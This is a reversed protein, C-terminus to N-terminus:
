MTIMLNSKVYDPNNNFIINQGSRDSIFCEKSKSQLPKESIFTNLLILFMLYHYIIGILLTFSARWPCTLTSMSILWEGITGVFLRSLSMTHNIEANNYPCGFHLKLNAFSGENVFLMGLIEIVTSLFRFFDHTLVLMVFSCIIQIFAMNESYGFLSYQLDVILSVLNSTSLLLVFMVLRGIVRYINFYWLEKWLNKRNEPNTYLNVTLAQALSYYIFSLLLCMVTAAHRNEGVFQKPGHFMMNALKNYFKKYIPQSVYNIENDIKSNGYLQIQLLM